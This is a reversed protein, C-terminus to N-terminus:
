AAENPGFSVSGREYVRGRSAEGIQCRYKPEEGRVGAIDMYGYKEYDDTHEDSYIADVLDIHWRCYDPNEVVTFNELRSNQNLNMSTQVVINWEDNHIVMFKCHSKIFRICGDGFLKKMHDVFDPQRKGFAYDFVWRTSLIRSDAMLEGVRRLDASAASWTGIAVHAPGTFHLLAVLVDVLSFQGFTFCTLEKNHGFDQLADRASGVKFLRPRREEWPRSYSKAQQESM